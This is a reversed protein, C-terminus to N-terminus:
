GKADEALQLQTRLRQVEARLAEITRRAALDRVLAMSRDIDEDSMSEAEIADLEADLEQSTQQRARLISIRQEMALAIGDGGHRPIQAADLAEHAAAMWRRLREAESLLEHCEEIIDTTADPM